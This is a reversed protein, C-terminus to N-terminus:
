LADHYVVQSVSEPVESWSQAKPYCFFGPLLYTNLVRVTNKLNLEVAQM